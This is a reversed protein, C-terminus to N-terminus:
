AYTLEALASDLLNEQTSKNNFRHNTLLDGFANLELIYPQRSRKSLLIDFGINSTGPFVESVRQLLPHCQSLIHQYDPLTSLDKRHNGLHLNTMPSSSCRLIGHTPRGAISLLRIDFSLGETQAKPLWQEAYITEHILLDLIRAIQTERYRHIKLSNYLKAQGREEVLEISTHAQAASGDAKLQLAMVGSASSGYAPKIFVKCSKEDLLISKIDGYDQAAAIGAITKPVPLNNNALRTQVEPKDFLTAITDPTNVYHVTLNYNCAQQYIQDGLDSLMKCFGVYWEKLFRIRGFDEQLCLAETPTLRMTETAGRAVLSREIAFNEGPSEIKILVQDSRLQGFLTEIVTECTSSSLIAAFSLTHLDINQRMRVAALFEKCRRGELNGILIISVTSSM